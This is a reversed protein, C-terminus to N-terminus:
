DLTLRSKLEVHVFCVVVLRTRSTKGKVRLGWLAILSDAGLNCIISPPRRGGEDIAQRQRDIAEDSALRGEREPPRPGGEDIARPRERATARGGDSM